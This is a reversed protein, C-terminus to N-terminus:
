QVELSGIRPISEDMSDVDHMPEKMVGEPSRPLVLDAHIRREFEVALKEHQKGCVMYMIKIIQYVVYQLDHISYTGSTAATIKAAKSSIDAVKELCEAMFSGAALIKDADAKMEIAGSYLKVAQGTYERMLALEELIQLQESPKVGLQEELADHLTKNLHKKYVKPMGSLIKMIASKRKASAKLSVRGGHIYCTRAGKMAWRYCKKDPRNKFKAQCRKPDDDAPKLCFGHLKKFKSPGKPKKEEVM